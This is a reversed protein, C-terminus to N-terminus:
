LNEKDLVKLHIGVGGSRCPRLLLICSGRVLSLRPRNKSGHNSSWMSTNHLKEEEDRVGEDVGHPDGLGGGLGCVAGSFEDNDHEDGYKGRDGGDGDDSNVQGRM